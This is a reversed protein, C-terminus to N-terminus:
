AIRDLEQDLWGWFAPAPEARIPLVATPLDLRGLLKVADKATTLLAAAGTERFGSAIRELSAAPYGHHDPFRLEGAVDYGLERVTRAFGDPRAIASVLFVKAGPPLEGTGNDGAGDL